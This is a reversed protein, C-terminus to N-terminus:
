IVYKEVDFNNTIHIKEIVNLSKQDVLVSDGAFLGAVDKSVYCYFKNGNPLRIIAKDNGIVNAIEAVLLSPKKLNNLENNTNNFLESLMIREEESRKLTQTILRNEEELKKIRPHILIDEVNEVTNEEINNVINEDKIIDDFATNKTNEASKISGRTAM